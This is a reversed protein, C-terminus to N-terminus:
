AIDGSLRWEDTARKVLGAEADQGAMNFVAGRSRITVGSGPVITTTGAGYQAIAIVTGVPFPVSSNPPVILSNSTAVNMEVMKGADALVLTYSATRTNIVIGPNDTSLLARSRYVGDTTNFIWVHGTAPVDDKDFKNTIDTIHGLHTFFGASGQIYGSEPDNYGAM